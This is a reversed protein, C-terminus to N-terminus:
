QGNKADWGDASSVIHDYIKPILISKILVVFKDADIIRTIAMHGLDAASLINCMNNIVARRRVLQMRDTLSGVIDDFSVGSDADKEADYVSKAVSVADLVDGFTLNAYGGRAAALTDFWEYTASLIANKFETSEEKKGM